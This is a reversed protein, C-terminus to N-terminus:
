FRLLAGGDAVPMAHGRITGLEPDFGSDRTLLVGATVGGAILLAGGIVVGWFWGRRVLPKKAPGADNSGSASGDVLAPGPEPEPEPEPAPAPAPEPEPGEPKVAAIEALQADIEAITADTEAIAAEDPPDGDRLFTEYNRFLTRAKRLHSPDESLSYWHAYAQGLNYLHEPRGALGYSREFAAVAEAYNGLAYAQSGATFADQAAKLTDEESAPVEEGDAGVQPPDGPTLRVTGWPSAAALQPITVAGCVVALTPLVSMALAGRYRLHVRVAGM